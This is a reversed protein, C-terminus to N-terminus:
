DFLILAIAGLLAALVGASLGCAALRTPMGDGGRRVATRYLDVALAVACVVVLVWCSIAVAILRWDSM